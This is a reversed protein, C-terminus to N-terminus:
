RVQLQAPCHLLGPHPLLLIFTRSTPAMATTHLRQDLRNHLPICSGWIQCCCRPGSAEHHLYRISMSVMATSHLAQNLMNRLAISPGLAPMLLTSCCTLWSSCRKSSQMPWLASAAATGVVACTSCVEEYQRLQLVKCHLGFPKAHNLCATMGIVACTSQETGVVACTCHM